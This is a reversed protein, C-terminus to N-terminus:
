SGELSKFTIPLPNKERYGGYPDVTYWQNLTPNNPNPCYPNLRKYRKYRANASFVDYVINLGSSSNIKQM